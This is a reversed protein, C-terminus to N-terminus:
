LHPRNAMESVEPVRPLSRLFVVFQVPKSIECSRVGEAMRVRGRESRGGLSELGMAPREEEWGGLFRASEVGLWPRQDWPGTGPAKLPPPHSRSWSVRRKLLRTAGFPAPPNPLCAQPWRILSMLSMEFWRVCSSVCNNAVPVFCFQLGRM